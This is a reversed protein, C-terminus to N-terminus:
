GLEHLSDRTPRPALRFVVSRRADTFLLSPHDFKELATAIRRHATPPLPFDLTVTVLDTDFRVTGPARLLALLTRPLAEQDYDHDTPALASGLTGLLWRRANDAAFKLPQILLRHRTRLIARKADPEITVRPVKAPTAHLQSHIHHNDFDAWFRDHRVDARSRESEASKAHEDTLAAMRAQVERQEKKLAARAPNPVPRDDPSLAAGGRDALTDIHAFARAAKFSNEQAGRRTRLESMVESAEVFTPLNTVVPILAEGDREVVLRANHHLRGHTWLTDGVGDSSPAITSLDPLSVSAPVYGAYGFGDLELANLVDFDFGGRDFSIVIPCTNGVVGRLMRARALLHKSLADGAAVPSVQWTWGREDTIMVDAIGKSAIRRKSDWGKDIPAQGSYVKFHGDAGFWLREPMRALLVGRMLSADLAIPDFVASMQTIARHLTRVSPSRELGLVVGLARADREHMAELSGYGAGWAAMLALLVQHSDYVSTTPRVVNAADIACSVGIMAAAACLLLAGAYRCMHELPGSGLRAGAMLEASKREGGDDGKAMAALITEVEADGGNQASAQNTPGEEGAAEEVGVNGDPDSTEKGRVLDDRGDSSAVHEADMAQEPTRGSPPRSEARTAGRTGRRAGGVGPLLGQAVAWGRQPLGLRKIEKNVLSMSVGLKEGITRPTAGAGHMERLKEEKRGVLLRPPGPKARAVVAEIGGSKDRARVECVWGHSVGCLDAIVDTTLGHGLRVLSAIVVDRGLGDDRRFSLVPLGRCFLVVNDGVDERTIVPEEEDDFLTGTRGEM